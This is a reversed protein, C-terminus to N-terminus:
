GARFPEADARRFEVGLGPRDPDPALSSGPGPQPVGEFLMNEIRVHDHFYELHALHWVAACAHTSALPACHASLNVCHADCLASVRRFGTIGGCRTVDAQM